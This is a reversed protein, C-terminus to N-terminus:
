FIALFRNYDINKQRLFAREFNMALPECIM